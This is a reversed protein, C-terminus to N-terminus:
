ILLDQTAWVSPDAYTWLELKNPYKSSFDRSIEYGFMMWTTEHNMNSEGNVLWMLVFIVEM